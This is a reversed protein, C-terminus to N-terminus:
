LFLWYRGAELKVGTKEVGKGGREIRIWVFRLGGIHTGDDKSSAEDGRGHGSDSLGGGLLGGHVAGLKHGDGRAGGSDSVARSARSPSDIKPM